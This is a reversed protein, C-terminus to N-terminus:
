AVRRRLLFVGGVTFIGLTTPEPVIEFQIFNYNAEGLSISGGSGWGVRSSVVNVSRQHGAWDSIREVGDVFLDATATTPDFVWEYLHYGGNSGELTFRPGTLVGNFIDNSGNYAVVTTDGDTENVFALSFRRLNGPLLSNYEVFVLGGANQELSEVVRLRARLAWGKAWAEQTQELTPIQHIFNSATTSNDRVFWADFGQDNTVPGAELNSNNSVIWGETAPDTNGTHEYLVEGQTVSAFWGLLLIGQIVVVSGQKGRM